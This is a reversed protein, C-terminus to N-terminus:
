QARAATRSGGEPARPAVQNLAALKAAPQPEPEPQATGARGTPAASEEADCAAGGHAAREGIPDRLGKGTVTVRPSSPPTPSPTTPAAAKEKETADEEAATKAKTEDDREDKGDEREEAGHGQEEEEEGLRGQALARERKRKAEVVAPGEVHAVLAQMEKATLTEKDLLENALALLTGKHEKLLDVARDHADDLLSRVEREVAGRQATSLERDVLAVPGVTKTMGFRSVMAEALRTAQELDSSAGTTVEGDGFVVEEAARGGMAVDMAAVIQRKTQMHEDHPLQAVMGLAQGRPVVTAKHVPAAGPTLLAVLAHGGEHVATLRRAAPSLAASPREAGMLARDRARDLAKADVADLGDRAAAVSAANVMGVLDAGSCGPTGRAIADLDVDPALPVKACAAQLIALRGARDPNPVAVHRDFRGPRVLAPDLSEPLNTAAIVVVGDSPSFGDMEVLLQNLTMKMYQQDRPSRKGGVADIEDIFVISPAGRKAAAFLDRVRRAGVGVFMEEFESGSAYFFPVHAEGAVARALMTKGTGPPGVLLVGRPLKGGLRTFRAPDKLFAVVEELDAKAEDAGKVDDLRTGLDPAPKIEGGGGGLIGGKGLGRDDLAAGLAAVAVFAVGITRVTRWAQQAVTREAPAVFLPNKASGPLSSSAAAAAAAAAAASSSSSALGASPAMGAASFPMGSGIGGGGGAGMGGAGAEFYGPAGGAAGGWGGSWSGGAVGGGAAPVSAAYGRRLTELVAANDLRGAKALATIYESMAAEPFPLEQREFM